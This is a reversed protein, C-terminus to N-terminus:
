ATAREREAIWKRIAERRWAVTRQTLRIPRPLGNEHQWQYVTAKSVHGLMRRVDDLRILNDDM